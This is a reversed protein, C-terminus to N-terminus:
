ALQLREAILYIIEKKEGSFGGRGNLFGAIAKICSDIMFERYERGGFFTSKRELTRSEEQKLLEEFEDKHKNKQTEFDKM